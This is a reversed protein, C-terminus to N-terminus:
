IIIRSNLPKAIHQVLLRLAFMEIQVSSIRKNMIKNKIGITLSSNATNGCRAAARIIM